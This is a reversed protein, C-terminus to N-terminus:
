LFSWLLDSNGRFMRELIHLFRMFFHGCLATLDTQATRVACIDGIFLGQAAPLKRNFQFLLEANGQNKFEQRCM